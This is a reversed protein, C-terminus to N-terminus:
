AASLHKIKALAGHTALLEPSPPPIDTSSALNVLMGDDAWMGTRTFLLGPVSGPGFRLQYTHM